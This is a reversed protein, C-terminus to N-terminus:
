TSLDVEESYVALNIFISGKTLRNNETGKELNGLFFVNEKLYKNIKNFVNVCTINCKIVSTKMNATASSKIENWPFEQVM